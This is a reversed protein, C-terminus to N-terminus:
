QSQVYASDSLIYLCKMAIQEYETKSIKSLEKPKYKSKIKELNCNCYSNKDEISIEVGENTYGNLGNICDNLLIKEIGPSWYNDMYYKSCSKIIISLLICVMVFIVVKKLTKNKKLQIEM